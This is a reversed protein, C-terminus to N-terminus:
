HAVEEIEIGISQMLKTASFSHCVGETITYSFNLKGDLVQSNFSFNQALDPFKEALEGLELDHTSILGFADKQSLQRILARAGNQRDISNTGKLVEDLLYFVDVDDSNDDLKKLLQEIRRLEAYFGSVNEELSDQVRMSTFIDFLSVEFSSACVPSGAFALLMNVGLTREFTSKGSMNSGTIVATKGKGILEFNNCVRKQTPLLPHGIQKAKITFRQDSITPYTLEDHAYDFSSMSQLAEVQAIVDLWDDIHEAYNKKWNELAIMWQLDYLSILVVALYFYANKRMELHYLIKSLKAIALSGAEHEILQHQLAKLKDSTFQQKEFSAMLRAYRKLTKVSEDIKEVGISIKKATQRILFVNFAFGLLIIVFPVDLFAYALISSIALLPGLKSGWVILNGFFHDDVAKLWPLLKHIDVEKTEQDIKGYAQFDQRWDLQPTLEQVAEQRAYIEEKDAKKLLWDALRVKGIQTSTRNVLSFISSPGFVDMDYAYAHHQDLFELGERQEDKLTGAALNLEDENIQIIMRHYNLKQSLNAFRDLFIIFITMGVLASGFFWWLSQENAWYVTIILTSIFVITRIVAVVNLKRNFSKALAQHTTIKEQYIKQQQSNM